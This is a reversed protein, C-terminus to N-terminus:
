SEFVTRNVETCGGGFDPETEEDSLRTVSPAGAEGGRSTKATSALAILALLSLMDHLDIYQLLKYKLFLRDCNVLAKKSRLLSSPSTNSVIVKVSTGALRHQWVASTTQIVWIHVIWQVDIKPLPM